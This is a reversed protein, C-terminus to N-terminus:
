AAPARVIAHDIAGFLSRGQDDLMEMRVRDGFRLYPTDVRGTHQQQLARIEAIAASGAAPDPDSVTGSGVLTGAGLRRTRAAHAILAAFGNKMLGGDPRGVQRGNIHVELRRHLRGDRWWPALEDPTLAVPSFSTSPKAQVMGFGSHMERVQLARLSCDNALMLLRVHQLAQDARTGMPVDGLVAVIEGEIDIDHAEDPLPMDERAGLMDDSGGQYMLPMSSALPPIGLAACVWQGHNPYDSGDLWQAARPLPAMCAAPDFDFAAPLEGAELARALAALAPAATDWHDLAQRLDAAIADAPAARQLDRSVVVLRGDRSGDRLTALKVLDETTPL